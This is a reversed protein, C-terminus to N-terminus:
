RKRGVPNDIILASPSSSSGQETLFIARPPLLGDDYFPTVSYEVVEGKRVKQVVRKEFAAMPGRNYPRSQTVVNFLHDGAGGLARAQLHGREANIADPLGPPSLGDKVRSGRKLMDRTVTSNVGTAQGVANADRYRISPRQFSPPVVQPRPPADRTRTTLGRPAAGQLAADAVAGAAFAMDRGNADAGALIALGSMAGGIPNSAIASVRRIAQQNDLRQRAAEPTEFPVMACTEGNDVERHLRGGIMMTQDRKKLRERRNTEDYLEGLPDEVSRPEGKPMQAM